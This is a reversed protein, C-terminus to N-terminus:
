SWEKFLDQFLTKARKQDKTSLHGLVKVVLESEITAIKSLRLLSPHLLKADKWDSLELDGKIRKNETQSTLMAITLLSLRPSYATSNLVLAPRQKSKTLDTFPFKVLIVDFAKM